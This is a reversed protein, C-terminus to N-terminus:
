STVCRPATDMLGDLKSSGILGVDHMHPARLRLRETTM